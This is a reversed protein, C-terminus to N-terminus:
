FKILWETNLRINRILKEDPASTSEPVKQRNGSGDLYIENIHKHKKILVTQPTNRNYCMLQDYFDTM